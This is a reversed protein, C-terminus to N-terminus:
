VSARMKARWYGAVTETPVWVWRVVKGIGFFPFLVPSKKFVRIM